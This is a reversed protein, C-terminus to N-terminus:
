EGKMMLRCVGAPYKEDFWHWVDEKHVGEPFGLFEEEIEDNDNVPIGGFFEWLKELENKEFTNGDDLDMLADVNKCKPCYETDDEYYLGLQDDKGIWGCKNCRVLIM